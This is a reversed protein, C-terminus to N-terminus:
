LVLEPYSFVFSNTLYLSIHAKLACFSATNDCGGQAPSKHAKKSAKIYSIPLLISFSKPHLQSRM